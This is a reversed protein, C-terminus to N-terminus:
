VLVTALCWVTAFLTLWPWPTTWSPMGAAKATEIKAIGEALLSQQLRLQELAAALRDDRTLELCDECLLVADNLAHAAAKARAPDIPRAVVAAIADAHRQKALALMESIHQVVPMM